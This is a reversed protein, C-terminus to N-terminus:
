EKKDAAKRVADLVGNVFDVSDATSFRRALELAENIVVAPPTEGYHLLEYLALRIVNRDVAAMRELRWHEAREQIMRNLSEVESVTGEFLSRAFGEEEPDTRQSRLFTAIVHQPTHQGLEWQFLMQLALERAKRRSAM